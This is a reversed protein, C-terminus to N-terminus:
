ISGHACSLRRFDVIDEHDAGPGGAEGAGDFGLAGAEAGGADVLAAEAVREEVIRGVHSEKGRRFQEFDAVYREGAGVLLGRAVFGELIVALDGLVVGDMDQLVAVYGAYFAAVAIEADLDGIAEVAGGFKAGALEDDGGAVVVQGVVEVDGAFVEGFDVVVVVRGVGVEVCVYDNDAAFVGGGYGGEIEPAMAGADGQDVAPGGDVLVDFVPDLGVDFVADRVAFDM